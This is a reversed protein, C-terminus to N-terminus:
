DEKPWVHYWEAQGGEHWAMYGAAWDLSHELRDVTINLTEACLKIVLERGLDTEFKEKGLKVLSECLWSGPDTKSHWDSTHYSLKEYDAEDFLYNKGNLKVLAKKNFM